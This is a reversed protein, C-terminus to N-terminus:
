KKLEEFSNPLIIENSKMKAIVNNVIEQIEQPLHSIDIVITDDLLNIFYSKHDSKIIDTIINEYPYSIKIYPNNEDQKLSFVVKSSGDFINVINESFNNDLYFIVDSNSNKIFNDIAVEKEEEAITSVDLINKSNSNSLNDYARLNVQKVGSIFAFMNKSSDLIDKSYIISIDNTRTIMGSIVGYIYSIHRQDININFTNEDQKNLYIFNYDKFEEDTLNSFAESIVFTKNVRDKSNSFEKLYNVLEDQSNVAVNKFDFNLENNNEIYEGLSYEGLSEIKEDKIFLIKHKKSKCATMSVFLIIGFFVIFVKKM